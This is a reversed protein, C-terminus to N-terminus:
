RARRASGQPSGSRRIERMQRLTRPSLPADLFNIVGQIQSVFEEIEADTPELLAGGAWSEQAAGQREAHEVYIGLIRRWHKEIKAQSLSPQFESIVSYVAQPAAGHLATAVDLLQRSAAVQRMGRRMHEQLAAVDDDYGRSPSEPPPPTSLLVQIQGQLRLAEDYDEAAAAAQKLKNLAALQGVRRLPDLVGLPPPLPPSGSRGVARQVTALDAPHYQFLAGRAGRVTVSESGQVATVEGLEGPRLSGTTALEPAHAPSLAVVDGLGPHSGGATLQAFVHLGGGATAEPLAAGDPLDVWQQTDGKYLQMGTICVSDCVSARVEQSFAAGEAGEPCSAQAQRRLAGEAAQRLSAADACPPGARVTVARGWLYASVQAAGGAAPASPPAASPYAAPQEPLSPPRAPPLVGADAPAPVSAASSHRGLGQPEDPPQRVAWAAAAQSPAAQSPPQAAPGPGRSGQPRVAWAAMAAESPQPGAAAQSPDRALATCSPQPTAAPHSPQPAAAPRSPQTALAASSSEQAMAVPSTPAVPAATPHPSLPQPVASPQPGVSAASPHSAFAALATQSPQAAAAPQSPQPALAADSARAAVAVADRPTTIVTANPQVTMVEASPQPAATSPQTTVMATVSPQPAPEGPQGAVVTATPQAGGLPEVTWAAAAQSPVATVQASAQRVAWAAEAPPVTVASPEEEIYEDEADSLQQIGPHSHQQLLPSQSTTRVQTTDPSGVRSGTHGVSPAVPEAPAAAPAAAPPPVSEVQVVSVPVVPQATVASRVTHGLGPPALVTAQMHEEIVLRKVEAFEEPTLHESSRLRAVDDLDGSVGRLASVRTRSRTIAVAKCEEFEEATIRGDSALQALSRLEAVLGASAGSPPAEM